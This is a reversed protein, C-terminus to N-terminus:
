LQRGLQRCADGREIGLCPEKNRWAIGRLLIQRIDNIGTM